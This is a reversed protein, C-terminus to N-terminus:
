AAPLVGMREVLAVAEAKLSGTATRVLEVAVGSLTVADVGNGSARV